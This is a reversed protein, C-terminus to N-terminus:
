RPLSLVCCLGKRLTEEDGGSVLKQRLEAWIDRNESPLYALPFEPAPSNDSLIYKLHAQIESTSVINGNQDLVNFVYFHGKCLVLLHRAKDDTFLEDQSPQSMDLPYANVLYAGYWSLSPPVFRLQTRKAPSLHFAEPELLGAPLTLKITCNKELGIKLIRAFNKQKGSSGM